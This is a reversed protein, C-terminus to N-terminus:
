RGTCASYKCFKGKGGYIQGYQLFIKNVYGIDQNGVANEINNLYIGKAYNKM